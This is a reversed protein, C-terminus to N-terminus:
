HQGAVFAGRLVGFGISIGGVLGFAYKIGEVSGRFKAPIPMFVFVAFIAGLGSMLGVLGSLKGRGGEASYDALVATLMCSTAATGLAFVFRYFVLDTSVGTAYPYLILALGMFGFGAGYIFNRGVRDSLVGWVYVMVLSICQDFFTLNGTINGLDKSSVNLISGLVFGQSANLFVYMCIAFGSALVFGIFNIYTVNEKVSILKLFKWSNTEANSYLM